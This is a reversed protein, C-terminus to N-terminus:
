EYRANRGSIGSQSSGSRPRSRGPNAATEEYTGGEPEELLAPLTGEPLADFAEDTPAFVTFPGEGNLTDVLGTLSGASSLLQAMAPLRVVNFDRM